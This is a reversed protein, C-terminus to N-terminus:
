SSEKYSEIKRSAFEVLPNHNEVIIEKETEINEVKATTPFSFLNGKSSYKVEFPKLFFNNEPFAFENMDTDIIFGIEENEYEIKRLFWDWFDDDFNFFEEGERKLLKNPYKLVRVKNNFIELIYINDM